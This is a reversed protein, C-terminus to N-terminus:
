GRLRVGGLQECEHVESPSGLCTKAAALHYMCSFNRVSNMHLGSPAGAMKFPRAAQLVGYGSPLNFPKLNRRSCM